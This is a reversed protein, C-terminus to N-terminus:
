ETKAKRKGRSTEVVEVPVEQKIIDAIGCQYLMRGVADSVTMIEGLPIRAAGFNAVRKTKIEM